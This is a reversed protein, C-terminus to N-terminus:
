RQAGVKAAVPADTASPRKAYSVYALGVIVGGVLNGLGVVLMNRAYNIATASDVGELVGLSYTTMNAVVHEFGSTIFAFLCWFIITFKAMESKLRTASWIALCVLVNCLVGRAFLEMSSEHAKADLMAILMKGAPTEGETLGSLRVLVAFVWAGALNAFFTFALTTTWQRGDIARRAWGQTLTMMSSTVLEGGAAVVLTLAIGFVLGNVLKVIPSGAELLPGSASIMLIVAVGIYAGALMAQVLFRWPQSIGLAKKIANHDQETLTEPISLM